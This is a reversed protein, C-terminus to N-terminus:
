GGADESKLYARQEAKLNNKKCKSHCSICVPVVDFWHKPEYGLFHHYQQAPKSCYHCLLFRSSILKGAQITNNIAHKAKRQNPHRVSFRKDTLRHAIKGKVSNRYKENSKRHTIKGKETKKYNSGCTKCCSQLGDKNSRNKHFESIAKTDNCRPCKKTAEM